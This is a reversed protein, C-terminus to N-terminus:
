NASSSLLACVAILSHSRIPLLTLGHEARRCCHTSRSWTTAPWSGSRGHWRQRLGFAHHRHTQLYRCWKEPAQSSFAM